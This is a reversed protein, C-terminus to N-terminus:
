VETREDRAHEIAEKLEALSQMYEDGGKPYERTGTEPDTFGHQCDYVDAHRQIVEAAITMGEKIADSQIAKVFREWDEKEYDSDFAWQPDDYEWESPTKM